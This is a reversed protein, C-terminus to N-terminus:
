RTAVFRTTMSHNGSKFHQLLARENLISGISSHEAAALSYAPQSATLQDEEVRTLDVADSIEVVHGASPRLQATARRQHHRSFATRGSRNGAVSSRPRGGSSLTCSHGAQHPERGVTAASSARNTPAASGATEVRSKGARRRPHDAIRM